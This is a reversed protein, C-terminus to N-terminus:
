LSVECILAVRVNGLVTARIPRRHLGTEWPAATRLANRSGLTNKRDHPVTAVGRTGFLRV